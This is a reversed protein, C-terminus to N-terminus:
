GEQGNLVAGRILASVSFSEQGLRNSQYTVEVPAGIFCQQRWGDLSCLGSGVPIEADALSQNGGFDVRFVKVSIGASDVRTITGALRYSENPMVMLFFLVVLASALVILMLVLPVNKVVFGRVMGFPTYDMSEDDDDSM